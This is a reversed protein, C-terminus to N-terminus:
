DIDKFVVISDVPVSDRYSIELTTKGQYVDIAKPSNTNIYLTTIVIIFVFVILFLQMYDVEDKYLVSWFLIQLIIIALIFLTIM